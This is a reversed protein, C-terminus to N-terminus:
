KLSRLVLDDESGGDDAQNPGLRRLEFGADLRKYLLPKGTCPDIMKLADPVRGAAKIRCFAAAMRCRAETAAERQHASLIAPLFVRSVLDLDMPGRARAVDDQLEM